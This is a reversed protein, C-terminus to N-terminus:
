KCREAAQGHQQTTAHQKLLLDPSGSFPFPFPLRSTCAGMRAALRPHRCARQQVKVEKIWEEQLSKM